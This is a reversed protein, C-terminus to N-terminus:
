EPFEAALVAAEVKTRKVGRPNISLTTAVGCLDKYAMGTLIAARSEKSTAGGGGGSANADVVATGMGKPLEGDYGFQEGAKFHIQGTVSYVGAGEAILVKRRDKAQADTLRIKGSHLSVPGTAMYSQM